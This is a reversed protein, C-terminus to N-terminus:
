QQAVARHHWANAQNVKVKRILQQRAELSRAKADGADPIQGCHGVSWQDRGNEFGPACRHLIQDPHTALEGRRTSIQDLVVVIQDIIIQLAETIADNATRLRDALRLSIAM